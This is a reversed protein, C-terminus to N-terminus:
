ERALEVIRIINSLEEDTTCSECDMKMFLKDNLPYLFRRIFGHKLEVISGKPIKSYDPEEHLNYYKILNEPPDSTFPYPSNGFDHFIEGVHKKLTWTRKVPIELKRTLEFVTGCASCMMSEEIKFSPCGCSPCEVPIEFPKQATLNKSKLFQAFCSDQGNGTRNYKCSHCNKNDCEKKFFEKYLADFDIEPEEPFNKIFSCVWTVDVDDSKLKIEKLLKEKNIM